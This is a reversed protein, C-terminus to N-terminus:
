EVLKLQLLPVTIAVRKKSHEFDAVLIKRSWDMFLESSGYNILLNYYHQAPM